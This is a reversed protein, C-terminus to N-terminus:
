PMKISTMKLLSLGQMHLYPMCFNHDFFYAVITVRM